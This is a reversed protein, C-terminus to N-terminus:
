GTEHELLGACVRIRAARPLPLVPRPMRIAHPMGHVRRVM